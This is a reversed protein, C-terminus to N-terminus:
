EFTISWPGVGTIDLLVPDSVYVRGDYPDTTNVLLDRGDGYAIVAFHQSGQNGTIHATSGVDGDVILVDDNQGQTTGPATAHRADTLPKLEITWASSATVELTTIEEGQLLNVVRVGDYPDTTNVLLDIQEGTPGHSIVAFHQSGGNGVIHLIAAKDAPLNLTVIDDGSGSYTQPAVGITTTTTPPETTTTSSRTSASSSPENSRAADDSSGCGVAVLGLGVLVAALRRM